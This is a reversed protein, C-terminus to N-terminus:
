KVREFRLRKNANTGHIFLRYAHRDAHHVACLVVLNATTDERGLSRPKLHHVEARDPTGCCRCRYRDRELVVKRVALWKSNTQRGQEKKEAARSVPKALPERVPEGSLPM